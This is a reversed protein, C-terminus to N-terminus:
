KGHCHKYKKGSGCPCPDNRGVKDEKKKSTDTSASQKGSNYNMKETDISPKSEISVSVKFINYVIQTRIASLLKRFMNYGEKKYEVLPDRQGYGRLGIGSRLAEIADLHDVWLSDIVKLMLMREINRMHFEGVEKEREAYLNKAESFVYDVIAERIKESNGTKTKLSNIHSRADSPLALITGFVELMEEINWSSQFETQAHIKVILGIEEKVLDLIDKKLPSNMPSDSKMAQKIEHWDNLIKRRKRYITERQTNMVNDYELVYRRIDFNYGEIRKQASEIQKSIFSSVIPEDEPIKFTEMVTKMKDSGFRRMLEDEASVCFQSKGPDGQRGSRGRLQNDIRRAEHRETGLVFLGGLKTVGESLKIDTGRGAMNTAITVAGKEGAKSIISAEKEHHKANLVEHPIGERKLLASLEESKEIAITGVLVPQGKKHLEKIERAVANFKGKETRYIKDPFDERIMPQNTPVEVVDLGYVKRFEEAQTLATGTMGALKDFMRFYNQFTITALTKSEKQVPVGEKAEIAQHLGESFRRGPMIRGTFQDVIHIQGDKVVYDKDRKMIAHARLAQELHHVYVIGKESYIDNVGLAKEVADIGAENLTASNYKEDINYHENEKLSPVISAFRQYMKGSEEDPASIILPTRAEDILISDVEDVIAYFNNKRQVMQELEGVMNDRLYDFGFENNTGYTIDCDYAQKKEELTQGHKTVGVTLGLFRYVIGMWDADRQSLYDNVTVVYVGKGSLANLYIPMTSVLTKGEGTKMEAIMGRHLVVAGVIQVDFPIMNWTAEQGAIEFKTGQLRRCANKVVAFAEPLIDEMKNKLADGSLGKLKGKFELTKARLEDDSFSKFKEDFENVKTVIPKIKKVERGSSSGFIKDFIAM